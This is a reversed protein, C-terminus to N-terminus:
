TESIVLEQREKVFNQRKGETSATALDNICLKGPKRVTESFSPNQYSPLRLQTIKDM